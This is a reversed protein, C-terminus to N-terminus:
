SPKEGSNWIELCCEQVEIEQNRQRLCQNGAGLPLKKTVTVGVGVGAWERLGQVTQGDGRPVGGKVNYSSAVTTFWPACQPATLAEERGRLVRRTRPMALQREWGVPAGHATWVDKARQLITDSQARLRQVAPALCVCQRPELGATPRGKHPMQDLCAREEM